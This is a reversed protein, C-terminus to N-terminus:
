KPRFYQGWLGQGPDQCLLLEGDKEATEGYMGGAKGPWACNHDAATCYWEGGAKGPLNSLAAEPAPGPMCYGSACQSSETCLEGVPKLTDSVISGGQQALEHARSLEDCRAEDLRQQQLCAQYTVELSKMIANNRAECAPDTVRILLIRRECSPLNPRTQQCQRVQCVDFDQAQAGAGCVAVLCIPIMRLILM